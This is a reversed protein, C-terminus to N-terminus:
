FVSFLGTLSSRLQKPNHLPFLYAHLFPEGTASPSAPSSSLLPSFPFLFTPFSRKSRPLHVASGATHLSRDIWDTRTPTFRFAGHLQPSINRAGRTTQGTNGSRNIGFAYVKAPAPWARGSRFLARRLTPHAHGTFGCIGAQRWYRRKGTRAYITQKPLFGLQRYGSGM